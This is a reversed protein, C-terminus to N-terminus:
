LLNAHLDGTFLQHPHDVMGHQSELGRRFLKFLEAHLDNLVSELRDAHVEDMHGLGGGQEIALCGKDSRDHAEGEPGVGRRHLGGLHYLRDLGPFVTTAM